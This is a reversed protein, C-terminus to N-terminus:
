GMKEDLAFFRKFNETTANGIAEVSIGRLDAIAKATHAVFAPENRKGRYPIPALYPSDTEILMRDLPILKAADRINQAKPYTVNGAFSVLFGIDLGKRAHDVTGTFCHLVGGLASDNWHEALIGFCDDWANESNDSPRIHLVVPLKAVRALQLQRIFVRQQVDRPSHDYYYDLGIEGWAVIKPHRALEAMRAYHDDNVLSAEHPHVGLTAWTNDHQEALKIACDVEDPGQGNGIALLGEVGTERARAFVDARDADYKHGELHAHSDIFM